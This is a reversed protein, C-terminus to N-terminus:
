KWVSCDSENSVPQHDLEKSFPFNKTEVNMQSSKHVISLSFQFSKTVKQILRRRDDDNSAFKRQQFHQPKNECVKYMLDAHILM